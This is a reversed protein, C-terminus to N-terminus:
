EDPKLEIVLSANAIETSPTAVRTLEWNITFVDGPSYSNASSIVAQTIGTDGTVRTTKQSSAEGSVHAVKPKTTLCTTGNILVDAELSLTNSDDKGSAGVSLYVDAVRGAYRPSGVPVGNKSAKIEGSYNDSLPVEVAYAVQQKFGASVMPGSLEM